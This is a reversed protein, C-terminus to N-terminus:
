NSFCELFITFLKISTKENLNFKKQINSLKNKYNDCNTQKLINLFFELEDNGGILFKNNDYIMRIQPFTKIEDVKFKNKNDNNVYIMKYKDNELQTKILKETNLSFPCGQLIVVELIAKM